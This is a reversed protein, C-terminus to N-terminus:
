FNYRIGAQVALSSGPAEGFWNSDINQGTYRYVVELLLGLKSVVWYVQGLSAQPGVLYRTTNSAIGNMEEGKILLKNQVGISAFLDFKSKDIIKYTLDFPVTLYTASWTYPPVFIAILLNPDREMTVKQKNFLVGSRLAFRSGLSRNVRLGAQQHRSDKYVYYGPVLTHKANLANINPSAVLEVSWKNQAQIQQFAFFVCLFLVIKKM